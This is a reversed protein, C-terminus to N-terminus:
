MDSPGKGCDGHTWAGLLSIYPGGERGEEKGDEGGEERRGGERMDRVEGQMGTSCPKHTSAFM